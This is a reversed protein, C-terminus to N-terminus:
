LCCAMSAVFSWFVSLASLLGLCVVIPWMPRASRVFVVILMSAVFISLGTAWGGSCAIWAAQSPKGAWTRAAASGVWTAVAGVSSAILVLKKM